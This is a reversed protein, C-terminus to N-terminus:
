GGTSGATLLPEFLMFVLFLFFFLCCFFLVIALALSQVFAGPSQGLIQFGTQPEVM